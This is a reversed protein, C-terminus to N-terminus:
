LDTISIRQDPTGRMATSGHNDNGWFGCSCYPQGCLCHDSNRRIGVLKKRPSENDM